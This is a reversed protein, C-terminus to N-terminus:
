RYVVSSDLPKGCFTCYVSDRPLESRRKIENEMDIKRQLIRIYDRIAVKEFIDVEDYIKLLRYREKLYTREGEEVRRIKKDKDNMYVSGDRLGVKRSTIKICPQEIGGIDVAYWPCEDFWEIYADKSKGSKVDNFEKLTM